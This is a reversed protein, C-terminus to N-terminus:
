DFVARTGSYTMVKMWQSGFKGEYSMSLQNPSVQKLTIRVPYTPIPIGLKYPSPLGNLDGDVESGLTVDGRFVIKQNTTKTQRLTTPPTGDKADL